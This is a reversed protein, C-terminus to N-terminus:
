LSFSAKAPFSWSLSRSCSRTRSSADSNSARAASSSLAAATSRPVMWCLREEMSMSSRSIASWSLRLWDM